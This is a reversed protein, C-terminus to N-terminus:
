DKRALAKALTVALRATRQAGDVAAVM